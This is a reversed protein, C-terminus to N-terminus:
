FVMEGLIKKGFPIVDSIIVGKTSILDFLEQPEKIVTTQLKLNNQIIKGWLTNLCM